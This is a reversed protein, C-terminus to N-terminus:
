SAAYPDQMLRAFPEALVDAYAQWHGDAFGTPLGGLGQMSRATLAGPVLADVGVFAALEAGAGAPDRLVQEANVVLHPLGGQEVGFRVHRIARPLWDIAADFDNLGAYPLWGFALWNLFADRPDRDVVIVRTGPM